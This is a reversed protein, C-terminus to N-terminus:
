SAATSNPAASKVVEARGIETLFPWIIQRAFDTARLPTEGSGPAIPPVLTHFTVSGVMSRHAIAPDLALFRGSDQGERLARDVFEKDRALCAEFVGLTRRSLRAPMAASLRILQNHRPTQLIETLAAFFTILRVTPTAIAEAMSRKADVEGTLNRTAADMAHSWLGEKSGYAQYLTDTSLGARQAIESVRADEFGDRLFAEIALELAKSLRGAKGALPTKAGPM